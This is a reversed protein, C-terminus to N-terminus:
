LAHRDQNKGAAGALLLALEAGQNMMLRAVDFRLMANELFDGAGGGHQSVRPAGRLVQM